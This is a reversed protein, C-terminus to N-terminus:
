RGRRSTGARLRRAVEAVFADLEELTGENLYVFDARRAKEEDPILRRSREEVWAGARQRRVEDPATVLVVADFLREAGTEYLLPVEVVALDTDAVAELWALYERRVRPHILGELWALEDPDSFVIAGIRSRDTTGYRALLAERVERDCAYLRHVIEDASLVAAGQRRFAALAESKGAGIGGTVAV